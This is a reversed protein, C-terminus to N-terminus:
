MIQYNIIQGLIIIYQNLGALIQNQSVKKPKTEGGAFNKTDSNSNKTSDNVKTNNITTNNLNNNNTNNTSSPNVSSSNPLNSNTPNASDMNCSNSNSNTLNSNALDFNSSNSVASDLNASSSNVSNIFIVQNSSDTNENFSDSDDYLVTNSLKLNNIDESNINKNDSVDSASVMM